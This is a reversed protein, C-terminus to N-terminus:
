LRVAFCLGPNVFKGDLTVHAFESRDLSGLILSVNCHAIEDGDKLRLCPKKKGLFSLPDRM